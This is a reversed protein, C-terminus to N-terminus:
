NFTGSLIRHRWCLKPVTDRGFTPIYVYKANRWVFDASRSARRLITIREQIDELGVALNDHTIM